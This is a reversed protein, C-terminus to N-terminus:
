FSKLDKNGRLSTLSRLLTLPPLSSSPASFSFSPSFLLFIDGKERREKEFESEREREKERLSKVQSEFEMVFSQGPGRM